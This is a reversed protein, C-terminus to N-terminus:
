GDSDGLFRRVTLAAATIGLFLGILVGGVIWGSGGDTWRSIYRGGFYGLMLFVVVETGMAGVLGAARWPNDDRKPKSM